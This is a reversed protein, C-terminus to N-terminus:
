LPEKSPHLAFYLKALEIQINLDNIKSELEEITKSNNIMQLDYGTKIGADVGARIAAILDSYLLLNKATIAMNESYSEIKDMSQRYTFELGKQIDQSRSVEKLYTAQAEQTIAGSNYALPLTLQIGADYYHGDYSGAIGQFRTNRYGGSANMALTPLYRSHTVGYLNKLVSSQAQSYQLEFGSHVYSDKEIPEFRPLEFTDPDIDSIKAIEYRQEALAYKLSTLTKLEGSQTMLANNLETIDAKGADYLHRKIFVEIEKNRLRKMSQEKLLSNKRYNLLATFLQQNYAAIQQLLAISASERKADAYAIQYTIGGSRFIDQSISASLNETESHVNGQATKDYSYGASLNIPAIWDTRLKEHESEDIKLQQELVTQKEHNLLQTHDDGSSSLPLFPLILCLCGYKMRRNYDLKPLKAISVRYLIVLM